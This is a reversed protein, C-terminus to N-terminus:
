LSDNKKKIILTAVCLAILLLFSLWNRKLFRIGFSEKKTQNKNEAQDQIKDIEEVIGKNGLRNLFGSIDNSPKESRKIEEVPYGLLTRRVEEESDDENQQSDTEEETNRDLDDTEAEQNSDTAEQSGEQKESEDLSNEIPTGIEDAAEAYVGRGLVRIGYATGKGEEILVNHAFEVLYDSTPVGVIEVYEVVYKGVPLKVINEFQEDPYLIVQKTSGNEHRLSVIINNEVWTPINGKFELYGKDVTGETALVPLSGMIFLIFVLGFIRWAKCLNM